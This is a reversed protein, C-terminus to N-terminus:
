LDAQQLRPEHLMQQETQSLSLHWLAGPGQQVSEHATAPHELPVSASILQDFDRLRYDWGDGLSQYKVAMSLTCMYM